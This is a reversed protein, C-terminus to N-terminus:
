FSSQGETKVPEEVVVETEKLERLAQWIESQIIKQAEADTKTLRIRAAIKNPISLLLARANAIMASWNDIVDTKLVLEGQLKKVTFEERQARARTLRTKEELIINNSSEKLFNLYGHVSSVLDYTGYDVKCVVGDNALQQVRRESVMLLEALESLTLIESKM